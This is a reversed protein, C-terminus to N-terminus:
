VRDLRLRRVDLFRLANTTFSIRSVTCHTTRVSVQAGTYWGEEWFLTADGDEFGVLPPGPVLVHGFLSVCEPV